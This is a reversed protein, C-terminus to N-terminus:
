IKNILKYNRNAFVKYAELLGTQEDTRGFL